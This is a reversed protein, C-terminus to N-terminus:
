VSGRGIVRAPPAKTRGRAHAYGIAVAAQAALAVSAAVDRGAALAWSAFAVLVAWAVVAVLFETSRMGPSM